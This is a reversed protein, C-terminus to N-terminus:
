NYVNKIYLLMCLVTLQFTATTMGISNTVTVTYQGSDQEAVTPIRISASNTDIAIINAVLSSPAVRIGNAAVAPNANITINFTVSQGEFVTVNTVGSIM